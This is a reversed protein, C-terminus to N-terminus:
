VRKLVKAIVNASKQWSIGGAQRQGEEVLRSRHTDNQIVNLLAEAFARAQHVPSQHIPVYEAGTEGAVEKQFAHNKVVSATGLVMAELLTLSFAEANSPSAYVASEALLQQVEEHPLPGTLKVSSELGYNAILFKVKKVTEVHVERGVIVLEADPISEKVQAFAHILCPYDKHAYLDGVAVIQHAKKNPSSSVKIDVATTARVLKERLFSFAGGAYVDKMYAGNCLSKPSFLLSLRTMWILAHWYLKETRTHVFHRVEPNNTVYMVPKPALLPGYNALNFTVVGGLNKVLKPLKFQEWILTKLFGDEYNVAHVKVQEPIQLRDVYDEHAVVTLQLEPDQALLPIIHNFFVVGGGSKAHIANVVVHRTM